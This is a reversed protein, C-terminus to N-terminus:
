AWCYTAWALFLYRLTKGTSVLPIFLAMPVRFVGGILCLPDGIVPLFSFLLSWSGYKKYYTFAKQRQKEKIGLIKESLHDGGYRGILYTTLAGLVNGCSAVGVLFLPHSSQHVLAVLLWESGLPILTAALFSISFLYIIQNEIIWEPMTTSM